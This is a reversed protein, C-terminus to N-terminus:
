GDVVPEDGVVVQPLLGTRRADIEVILREAEADSVALAPYWAGDVLVCLGIGEFLGSMTFAHVQLPIRVYEDGSAAFAELTQARDV